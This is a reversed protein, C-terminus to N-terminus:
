SNSNCLIKYGSSALFKPIYLISYIDYIITIQLYPEDFEDLSKLCDHLKLNKDKKKNYEWGNLYHYSNWREHEAFILKDFINNSKKPLYQIEYEKGNWFKDLELSYTHLKTYDLGSEQLYPIMIKDFTNQNIKYLEEEKLSSKEKKLQLAQLKIDIHKSQAINSLKDSYKASKYWKTDLQSLLLHQFEKKFEDGYGFHIYKSLKYNNEDILKSKTFIETNNGFTYFRDFFNRDKSIKQSLHYENFMGFLVKTKLESNRLYVREHLELAINLNIEEDRYCIYVNQLDENLFIAQKYFEPSKFDQDIIKFRITPFKEETYNTELKLIEFFQTAKKTIINITHKNEYPFNSLLLIDKIITLALKDDGLIVSHIQKETKIYENSIIFHHDFIDKSCEEYFSFTKIDIQINEDLSPLVINQHFIAKLETNAIHVILRTSTTAKNVKINEILKIALEINIRDNGLSIVAYRMTDYNLLKLQRDSLVDGVIVGFGKQRYDEIYSNSEDAEIVIANDEGFESDLFARNIQGLGFVAIHNDSIIRKAIFKDIFEQFFTFVAAWFITIAVCLTSIFLFINASNYSDPFNFAFLNLTNTISQFLHNGELLFGMMGCVIALLATFGTIYLKQKQIVYFKNKSSSYDEKFEKYHQRINNALKV